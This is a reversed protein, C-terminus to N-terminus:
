CRRSRTSRSTARRSRMRRRSSACGASWCTRTTRATSSASSAAARRPSMRRALPFRAGAGGREAEQLRHRHRRAPRDGQVRAQHHRGQRRHRHRAAGGAARAQRRRLAPGALRRHGRRGQHEAERRGRPRPVGQPRGSRPQRSRRTSGPEIRFQAAFSKAMTVAGSRQIRSAQGSLGLRVLLAARGQPGRRPGDGARRAGAALRHGPGAAGGAGRHPHPHDVGPELRYYAVAIDGGADMEFRHEAKNDRVTDTM